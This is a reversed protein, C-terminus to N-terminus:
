LGLKKRGVSGADCAAGIARQVLSPWGHARWHQRVDAGIVDDGVCMRVKYNGSELTGTLDNSIFLRALEEAEHPDGLPWLEVKVVIM